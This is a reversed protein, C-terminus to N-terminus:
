TRLHALVALVRRNHARHPTIGLKTFIANIHKAVASDSLALEAAIGANSHGRAMFALVERERPTLRLLAGPEPLDAAPEDAHAPTSALARVLDSLLHEVQIPSLATSM